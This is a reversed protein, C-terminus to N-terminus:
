PAAHLARCLRAVDRTLATSWEPQAVGFAEVARSCDLRSDAPRRAKLPYDRTAVPELSPFPLGHRSAEALIASAFGFWTIPPTGCIHLVGRAEGYKLRPLLTLVAEALEIAPTPCGLQDDVVRLISTTLARRLIAKPFNTGEGDFVWSTRLVLANSHAALVAREGALKSEGYVNLPRAEDDEVYPAGKYGDFVYDTSFHLLPIGLEATAVAVAGAGDANISFAKEREDEAADVATYAATNVVVDPGVAAIMRAVSTPKALDVEPRGLAFTIHGQAKAAELLARAVQGSRGIILLRM